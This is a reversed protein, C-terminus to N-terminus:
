SSCRGATPSEQDLEAQYEARLKDQTSYRRYLELLKAFANVDHPSSTLIGKYQAIVKPDFPNRQVEWDDAHVVPM